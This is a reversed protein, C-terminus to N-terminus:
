ETASWDWLVIGKLAEYESESLPQKYLENVLWLGSERIKQKPSHLGLWKDSPHCEECRSVTSIIASEWRLRDAKDDVRFVAFRFSGQIYRTVRWETEQLKNRDITGMYKEKAKSATLDLEWAELFADKDRSLLARGVNKRFISRDKNEKLFHQQLRSPLQNNGTHTGVRVIRDVEHAVEGNEFLIYIGNKPITASDFPFALRPLGTFLHHLKHCIISM